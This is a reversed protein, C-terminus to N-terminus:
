SCYTITPKSTSQQQTIPQSNEAVTSSTNPKLESLIGIQAEITKLDLFSREPSTSIDRAFTYIAPTRLSRETSNLHPAAKLVSELGIAFRLRFSLFQLM